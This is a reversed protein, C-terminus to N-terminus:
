KLRELKPISSGASITNNTSIGTVNTRPILVREMKRLNRGMGNTGDIRRTRTEIRLMKGERGVARNFANSGAKFMNSIGKLGGTFFAKNEQRAAIGVMAPAMGPAIASVAGIKLATKVRPSKSIRSLTNSTRPFSRSFGQRLNNMDLSGAYAAQSSLFVVLMLVWFVKVIKRM